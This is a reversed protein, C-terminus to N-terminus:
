IDGSGSWANAQLRAVMGCDVIDRISKCWEMGNLGPYTRQWWPKIGVASVDAPVAFPQFIFIASCFVMCSLHFGAFNHIMM